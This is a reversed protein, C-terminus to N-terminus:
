NNQKMFSAAIKIQDIKKDVIEKEALLKDLNQSENKILENLANSKRELDNIILLSKDSKYGKFIKEYLEKYAKNKQGMMIPHNKLHYTVTSHNINLLAGIKVVTIKEAAEYSCHKLLQCCIMKLEVINRTRTKSVLEEKMVGTHKTIILAIIEFEKM